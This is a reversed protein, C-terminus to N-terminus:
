ADSTYCLFGAINRLECHFILTGSPINGRDKKETYLRVTEWSCKHSLLTRSIDEPGVELFDGLISPVFGFCFEKIDNNPILRNKEFESRGTKSFTAMLGLGHVQTSTLILGNGEARVNGKLEDFAKWFMGMLAVMEVLHSITTTAFPKTMSPPMFDYSRTKKQLMTVITYEPDSYKMGRPSHRNAADWKRSEFEERQLVSLLTVWSAQEDDATSVNSFKVEEPKMTNTNKYSIDTGDIQFIPRNEIPGRKNSPPALFLVPTEFVVEFRLEHRRFKRKTGVHWLGMVSPACRRFGEASALYQQLVQLTTTFFAALSIVLAAIAVVDTSPM